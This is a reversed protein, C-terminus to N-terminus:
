EPWIPEPRGLWLWGIYDILPPEAGLKRLLLNNQARHHTSHSALQLMTEGLTTPQPEHGTRRTFFHAWPLIAPEELREEDLKDVFAKIEGYCPKIWDLLAPLTPFEDSKHRILEEKKWVQYFAKQTAHVHFLREHFDKDALAADTALATKWILADAWEMHAFLDRFLEVTFKNNSMYPYQPNNHSM